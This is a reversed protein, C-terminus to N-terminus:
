HASQAPKKWSPISWCTPLSIFSRWGRRSSAVEMLERINREIDAAPMGKRPSSIGYLKLLTIEDISKEVGKKGIGGQTRSKEYGAGHSINEKASLLVTRIFPLNMSRARKQNYLHDVHLTDPLKLNLGHHDKLFLNYDDHYNNNDVHVWLFKYNLGKCSVVFASGPQRGRLEELHLPYRNRLILPTRLLIQFNPVASYPPAKGLVYDAMLGDREHARVEDLTMNMEEVEAAYLIYLIRAVRSLPATRQDGCRASM